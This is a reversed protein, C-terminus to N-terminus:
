IPRKARHVLRTPRSREKRRMETVVGTKAIITIPNVKMLHAGELRRSQRPRARQRNMTRGQRRIPRSPEVELQAAPVQRRAARVMPGVERDLDVCTESIS